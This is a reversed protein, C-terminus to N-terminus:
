RTSALVGASRQRQTMGPPAAVLCLFRRGEKVTPPGTHLRNALGGIGTQDDRWTDAFETPKWQLKPSSPIDRLLAADQGVTLVSSGMAEVQGYATVNVGRKTLSGPLSAWLNVM